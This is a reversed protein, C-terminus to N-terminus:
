DMDNFMQTHNAWTPNSLAIKRFGLTKKLV